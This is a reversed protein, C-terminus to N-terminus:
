SQVKVSMSAANKSFFKDADPALLRLLTSADGFGGAKIFVQPGCDVSVQAVSLGPEFEGLIQLEPVGLRDLMCRATDGGTLVLRGASALCPALVRSMAFVLTRSPAEVPGCAAFLVPRGERMPAEAERLIDPTTKAGSMAIWESPSRVVVHAGGHSRVAEVQRSSASSFSGVVGVVPGHSAASYEPAPVTAHNNLMSALARALGASGAILLRRSASAILVAVAAAQLHSPVDADIVVAQMGAAFARELAVSLQDADQSAALSGCRLGAAELMLPLNASTADLREAIVLRGDRMTRGQEPFATAIVVGDFGGASVMARMEVALHGRLTSDVKKYVLVDDDTNKRLATAIRHTTHLAEHQTMARTDTDLAWSGSVHSSPIASLYLPVPGRNRAFAAACDAAGSLDDAIVYFSQFLHKM